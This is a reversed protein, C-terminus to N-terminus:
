NAATQFNRKFWSRLMNKEYRLFEHSFFPNHRNNFGMDKLDVDAASVVNGNKDHLEYSFAIRPIYINKVLRVDDGGSGLGVFNAPFVQGALDLNTVTMLMKQGPAMEEVLEQMYETLESFVRNAFKTRSQNVPKIDTYKGYNDWTVEVQSLEVRAVKRDSQHHDSQAATQEQHADASVAAVAPLGSM